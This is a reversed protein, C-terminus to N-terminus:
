EDVGTPRTSSLLETVTDAILQPQEAQILHASPALRFSGSPLSEIYRRQYESIPGQDGGARFPRDASILVTACQPLPPPSTRFERVAEAVATLEKRTQGLGSPTFNERIMTEYTDAPFMGRLRRTFLRALPRMWVLAQGVALSVGVTRITRDFGDYTPAHEPTTDVLLLGSVRGTLRDLVSRVVLGGMSHAVVVLNAGDPVQLDILAALDAGLDRISLRQKIRGSRGFGARDYTILCAKDALLPVVADWSTRGLGSGSEFVVFDRTSSADIGTTEVYLARGNVVVVEGAVNRM